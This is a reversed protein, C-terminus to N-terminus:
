NWSSILFQLLYINMHQLYFINWGIKYIHFISLSKLLKTKYREEYNFLDCSNFTEWGLM